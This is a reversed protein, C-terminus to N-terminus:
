ILISLAITSVQTTDKSSEMTARRGSARSTAVTSIRSAMRSRTRLIHRRVFAMLMTAYKRYHTPFKDRCPKQEKKAARTTCYFNMYFNSKIKCKVLARVNLRFLLALSVFNLSSLHGKLIPLFEINWDLFHSRIWSVGTLCYLRSRTLEPCYFLDHIAISLWVISTETLYAKELLSIGKIWNIIILASLLLPLQCLKRPRSSNLRVFLKKICISDRAIKKERAIVMPVPAKLNFLASWQYSYVLATM